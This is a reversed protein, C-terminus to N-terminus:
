VINLKELDKIAPDYLNKGEYDFRSGHCPCDWTHALNNWSLECGLHTCYPKVAYINGDKDKYIGVKQGEIEVVGGEGNNINKIIEDEKRLKNIILSYSVEKLMNGLEKYNKIPKLRKSNFVEKYKNEKGLIEDTIINAAINSSTMGWKKYGTGVYINPMMSSFEGIYPIKDLSICDETNWRFLIKSDPYLSKAIKELKEYSQKLDIKGGTKHSMGGVILIRKGNYIATRLSISPEEVNIYMGDFLEQETDIAILYSTEQYMKMFYFGPFNIIPYHSAIVVYKARVKANDTEIIYENDQEKIQTVKSYEYIEGKNEEIRNALGIIYKYSNFQAQNPFKIAGLVPKLISNNDGKEGILEKKTESIVNNEKIKIPVNIKTVFEANFGLSNVAEVEDKIKQLYNKDQTFVYNDVREFDCEINEDNIIKEINNIAQENADLYQKAKEKGVSKILYDYFLGHQSTIKGTTNGTTHSGIENKELLIVSKGLKTLYYATTLGTIGGGVICIDAYKDEELSNYKVKKVSEIWISKDM